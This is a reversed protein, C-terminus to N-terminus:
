GCVDRSQGDDFNLSYSLPDYGFRTRSRRLSVAERWKLRGVLQRKLTSASWYGALRRWIKSLLEALLQNRYGTKWGWYKMASLRKVLVLGSVM